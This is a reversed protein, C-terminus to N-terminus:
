REWDRRLHQGNGHRPALTTRYRQVVTPQHFLVQGGPAV